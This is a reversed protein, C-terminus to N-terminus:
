DPANEKEKRGLAQLKEQYRQLKQTVRGFVSEAPYQGFEDKQGAPLGTLLEIGEEITKVSYLSFQGDRVAKIVADKLMLNDVNQVPIIVGQDGTLGNAKCIDFFGEVKETVGGIPQIRGLQNVSGTVALNQRIPLDALSSLIAYLEASSASDGEVGEYNQEFTIQATLSLPFDQAFKSGLYGSLTLVGKAHIQGSM